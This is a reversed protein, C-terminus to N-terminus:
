WQAGQSAGLLNFYCHVEMEAPLPTLGGTSRYTALSTGLLYWIFGSDTLTSLFHIFLLLYDM